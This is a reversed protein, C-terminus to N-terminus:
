PTRRSRLWALLDDEAQAKIVNSFGPMRRVGKRVAEHYATEKLLISREVLNPGLDGGMGAPGHCTACHQTYLLGGKTADGHSTSEGPVEARILGRLDARDLKPAASKESYSSSLYALLAAKKEQAVPAGWGVMKEVESTWQKTTLRQNTTMDEGHCILCNEVFTQRGTMDADEDDVMPKEPGQGAALSALMLAFVFM